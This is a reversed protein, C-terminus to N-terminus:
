FRMDISCFKFDDNRNLTKAGDWPDFTVSWFKFLYLIKIGKAYMCTKGLCFSSKTILFHWFNRNFNTTLDAMNAVMNSFLQKKHLHNTWIEQIPLVTCWQVHLRSKWVHSSMNSCNSHIIDNQKPHQLWWAHKVKLEYKLQSNETFEVWYLDKKLTNLITFEFHVYGALTSWKNWKKVCTKMTQCLYLM